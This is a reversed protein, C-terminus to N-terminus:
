TTIKTGFITNRYSIIELSFELLEITIIELRHLWFQCRSTKFGCIFSYGRPKLVRPQEVSITVDEPIRLIYNGRWDFLSHYDIIDFTSAAMPDAHTSLIGIRRSIFFIWVFLYLRTFHEELVFFITLVNKRINTSGSSILITREAPGLSDIWRAYANFYRKDHPTEFYPSRVSYFLIM